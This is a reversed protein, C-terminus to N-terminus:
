ICSQPCACPSPAAIYSSSCSLYISYRFHLAPSRLRFFLLGVYSLPGIFDIQLLIKGFLLSTWARARHARRPVVPNKLYRVSTANASMNLHDPVINVLSIPCPTQSLTSSSFLTRHSPFRPYSSLSSFPHPRHRSVFKFYDPRSREM